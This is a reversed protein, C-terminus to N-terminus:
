WILQKRGNPLYRQADRNKPGFSYAAQEYSNGYYAKEIDIAHSSYPIIDQNNVPRTTSGSDICAQNYNNLFNVTGGSAISQIGHIAEHGLLEDYEQTNGLVFIFGGVSFAEGSSMDTLVMGMAKAAKEAHTRSVGTVVTQNGLMSAIAEKRYQEPIKRLYSQTDPDLYGLNNNMAEALDNLKSMGDRLKYQRGQASKILMDLLAEIKELQEKVPDKPGGALNDTGDSSIDCLVDGTKDDVEKRGGNGYDVYM